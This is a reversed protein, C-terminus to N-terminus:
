EGQFGTEEKIVNVVKRLTATGKKGCYVWEGHLEPIVLKDTM